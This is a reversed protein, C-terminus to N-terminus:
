QELQTVAKMRNRAEINKLNDRPQQCEDVITARKWSLDLKITHHDTQTVKKGYKKLKWKEAEDIEMTSINKLMFTNCIALDISSKAGDRPDVRTVIGQCLDLGNVITLGNDIVMKMLMKGGWDQTDQCGKIIEPGVHANADFVLLMAERGERASCFQRKIEEFQSAIDDRSTTSQQKLHATYFRIGTQNMEIRVGIMNVTPNPEYLKMKKCGSLKGCLLVAVNQGVSKEPCVSQCGKMTVNRTM